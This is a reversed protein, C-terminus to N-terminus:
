AVQWCRISLPTMMLRGGRSPWMAKTREGSPMEMSIRCFPSLRADCSGQAEIPLVPAQYAGCLAVPRYRGSSELVSPQQAARIAQTLAPKCIATRESINSRFTLPIFPACLTVSAPVNDGTSGTLGCHLLHPSGKFLAVSITRNTVDSSLGHRCIDGPGCQTPIWRQAM